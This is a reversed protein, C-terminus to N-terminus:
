SYSATGQWRSQGRPPLAAPVGGVTRRTCAARLIAADENAGLGGCTVTSQRGREVGWPMRQRVHSPPTSTRRRRHLLHVGDLRQPLPLLRRRNVAPRGERARQGDEDGASSCALRRYEQYEQGSRSGVLSRVGRVAVRIKVALAWALRIGSTKLSAPESRHWGPEGQKLLHLSQPETRAGGVKDHNGTPRGLRVIRAFGETSTQRLLVVATTRFDGGLDPITIPAQCAILGKTLSWPNGWLYM